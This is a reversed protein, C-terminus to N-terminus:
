SPLTQTPTATGFLMGALTRAITTPYEAQFMLDRRYLPTREAADSQTSGTYLLPGAATGDPLPLFHVASFASDVVSAAADRLAPTPAWITVMFGQVQRRTEMTAATLNLVRGVVGVRSPLTVVAGAATSGPLLAVLATAISALTDTSLVRYAAKLTGYAIGALQGAAPTGGFTVTAQSVTTTLTPTTPATYRWQDQYRTTLRAM